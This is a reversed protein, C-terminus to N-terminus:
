SFVGHAIRILIKEIEDIGGDEQMIDFPAKNKLIPLPHFLWRILRSEDEFVDIGLKQISTPLDSLSTEFRLKLWRFVDEGDHCHNNDADHIGELVKAKLLRRSFDARAPVETHWSSVLNGIQNIFQKNESYNDFLKDLEETRKGYDFPTDIFDQPHISLIKVKGAIVFTRLVEHDCPLYRNKLLSDYTEQFDSWVTIIRAEQLNETLAFPFKISDSVYLDDVKLVHGIPGIM